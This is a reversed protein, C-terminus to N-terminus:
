LDLIQKKKTEFEKQSIVGNDLLEKYKKLEDAGSKYVDETISIGQREILRASIAEFVDDLNELQYFCIRGSSTAVILKKFIGTGVSSIKDFPLDVRRGFAAKGYIRKDTVVIKCKNMWIYCIIALILLPIGGFIFPAYYDLHSHYMSSGLRHINIDWRISYVLTLASLVCAIIVLINGSAFKGEIITKEKM